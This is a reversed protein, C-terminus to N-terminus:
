AVMEVPLAMPLMMPTRFFLTPSGARIVEVKGATIRIRTHNLDGVDIEIGGKVPAVRYWVDRCKGVMEAQATLDSVLDNVDNRRLTIGERRAIERILNKILKSNLRQAYPNPRDNLVAVANGTQDLSICLIEPLSDPFRKPPAIRNEEHTTPIPVSPLTSPTTSVTEINKHPEPAIENTRLLNHELIKEQPPTNEQKVIQDWLQGKLNEMCFIEQSIHKIAPPLM